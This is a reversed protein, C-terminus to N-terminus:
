PDHHTAILTADSPQPEIDLGMRPITRSMRFIAPRASEVRLLVIALRMCPIAPHIRVETLLAAEIRGLVSAFAVTRLTSSMRLTTLLAADVWLRVTPLAVHPIARLMRLIALGAAEVRLMMAFCVRPIAPPIRVQALLAGEIDLLVPLEMRRSARLVRVTALLAAEVREQPVIALCMGRLAAHKRRKTRLTAEVRHGIAGLRVSPIAGFMWITARLAQEVRQAVLPLSMCWMASPREVLRSFDSLAAREFGAMCITPAILDASAWQVFGAPRVTRASLETAAM